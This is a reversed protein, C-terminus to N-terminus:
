DKDTTEVEVAGTDVNRDVEVDVGPAEIDVVRENRECGALGLPGLATLLCAGFLGLRKKNQYCFMDCGKNCNRRGRGRCFTRIVISARAELRGDTASFTSLCVVHWLTPM